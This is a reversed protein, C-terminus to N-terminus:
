WENGRAPVRREVAHTQLGPAEWRAAQAGLIAVHFGIQNSLLPLLKGVRGAIARRRRGHLDRGVEAFEVLEQHLM